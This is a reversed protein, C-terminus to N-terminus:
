KRFSCTASAAARALWFLYSCFANKLTATDCSKQAIKIKHVSGDANLMILPGGHVSEVLDNRTLEALVEGQFETSM